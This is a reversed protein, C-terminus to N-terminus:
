TQLIGDISVIIKSNQKIEKDKNKFYSSNFLGRWTNM